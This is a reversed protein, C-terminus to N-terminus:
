DRYSFWTSAYFTCVEEVDESREKFRAIIAIAAVGFTIYGAILKTNASLGQSQSGDKLGLVSPSPTSKTANSRIRGASNAVRLSSPRRQLLRRTAMTMMTAM